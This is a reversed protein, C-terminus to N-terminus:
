LVTFPVIQDADVGILRCMETHQYVQVTTYVSCMYTYPERHYPLNIKRVKRLVSQDILQGQISYSEEEKYESLPM